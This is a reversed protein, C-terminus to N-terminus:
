QIISCRLLLASHPTLLQGENDGLYIPAATKGAALSLIPGCIGLKPILYLNLIKFKNEVLLYDDKADNSLQFIMQWVMMIQPVVWKTDRLVVIIFYWWCSHFSCGDTGECNQPGSNFVSTDALSHDREISWPFNKKGYRIDEQSTAVNRWDRGREQM